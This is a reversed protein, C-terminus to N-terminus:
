WDGACAFDYYLEELKAMHGKAMEALAAFMQKQEADRNFAAMVNFMDMVEQEKKMALAVAEIFTIDESIEPKTITEAIQYDIAEDVEIPQEDTKLYAGLKRIHSLSEEAMINFLQKVSPDTVKKGMAQYYENGNIETQIAISLIRKYDEKNM